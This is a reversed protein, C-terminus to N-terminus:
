IDCINAVDFNTEEEFPIKKIHEFGKMSEIMAHAVSCAVSHKPLYTKHM